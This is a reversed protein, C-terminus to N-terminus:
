CPSSLLERNSIHQRDNSHLVSATSPIGMISCDRQLLIYPLTNYHPSIKYFDM